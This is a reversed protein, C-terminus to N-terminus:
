VCFNQAKMLNYLVKNGKPSKKGLFPCIGKVFDNGNLNREELKKQGMCNEVGLMVYDDKSVQSPDGSLNQKLCVSETM